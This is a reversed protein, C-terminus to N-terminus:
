EDIAADNSRKFGIFAGDDNTELTEADDRTSGAARCQKCFRPSCGTYRKYATGCTACMLRSKNGMTEVRAWVESRANVGGFARSVVFFARTGSRGSGRANAGRSSSPRARSVVAGVRAFSENTHMCRGRARDLDLADVGRLATRARPRRRTPPSRSSPSVSRSPVNSVAREDDRV